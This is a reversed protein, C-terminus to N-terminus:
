DQIHSINNNPWIGLIPPTARFITTQGFASYPHLQEKHSACMIYIIWSSNQSNPVTTFIKFKKTLKFCKGLFVNKKFDLNIELNKYM